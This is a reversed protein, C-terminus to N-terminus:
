NITKLPIIEIYKIENSSLSMTGEQDAPIYKPNDGFVNILINFQTNNNIFRFQTSGSSKTCQLKIIKGYKQFLSINVVNQDSSIVEFDKYIIKNEIQEKSLTEVMCKNECIGYVKDHAM